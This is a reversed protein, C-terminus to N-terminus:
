NFIIAHRLRDAQEFCMNSKNQPLDECVRNTAIQYGDNDSFTWSAGSRCMIEYELSPMSRCAKIVSSLDFNTTSVAGTGVGRFCLERRVKEEIRLCLQGLQAYSLDTAQDWWEPQLYFCSYQFRKEVDFCPEYPAQQNFQRMPKSEGNENLVIPFNNEMFVGSQCGFLPKQWQMTACMALAKDLSYGYYDLLGHGIGHQCGLGREGFKKICAQDLEHVVSLGQEAIATLLLQHYCGYGFSSDCVAVGKMGVKEYLAIGFEHANLHQSEQDQGSNEQKFKQYAAEAGIKDIMSVWKNTISKDKATLGLRLNCQQRYSEPIELCFEARYNSDDIYYSVAKILSQFCFSEKQKDTMITCFHIAVDRKNEGGWFLSQLASYLCSEVGENIALNCWEYIKTLKGSDMDEVSQVNRENALVVFEKGFGGFCSERNRNEGVLIKECFTFAKKLHMPLPRERPDVGASEFLHPTLFTYCIYVAKEPIFGLNCPALPDYVKFYNVKEREWAQKDNVGAMMEMTIGGICEVFEMNSYDPLTAVPKCLEVAKRMDYDTFALVGHGLGHVCMRYAGKGGPATKCVKVMKNIASVGESLLGGVVISHSCANRLDDTCFQMGSLGKQKFLEDGVVHGLLHTDINPPFISQTTTYALARYAYDGGKDKALKAFFKSLEAFNFNKNQLFAIEAYTNRSVSKNIPSDKLLFTGLILIIGFFLFLDKQNSIINKLKNSM